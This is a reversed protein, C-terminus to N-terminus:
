IKIKKFFSLTDDVLLDPKELSAFHGGSKMETWQQINFIREVYSRPPWESMEKPFVAIGTPINIRKFDKPFLRGGEERRGFYIWTSTSFTDTCLYTM